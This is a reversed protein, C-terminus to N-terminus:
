VSLMELESRRKRRVQTPVNTNVPVCQPKPIGKNILGTVPKDTLVSCISDMLSVVTIAPSWESTLIDLCLEGNEYVNECRVRDIFHVKPPKFPFNTPYEILLRYKRLRHRMDDLNHITANWRLINIDDPTATWYKSPSNKVTNCERKMRMLAYTSM